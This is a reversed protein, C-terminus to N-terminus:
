SGVRKGTSNNQIWYVDFCGLLPEFNAKLIKKELTPM